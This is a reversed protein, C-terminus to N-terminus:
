WEGIVVGGTVLRNVDDQQGGLGSLFLDDLPEIGASVIIDGLRKVAALEQGPELHSLANQIQLAGQGAANLLKLLGQGM